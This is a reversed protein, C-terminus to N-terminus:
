SSVTGSTQHADVQKEQHDIERRYVGHSSVLEKRPLLGAMTSRKRRHHHGDATSESSSKGIGLSKM